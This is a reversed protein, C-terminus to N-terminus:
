DLGPERAIGALAADSIGRDYIRVDAIAGRFTANTGTGIGLPATTSIDLKSSAARAVRAGDIFLELQGAERRVGLHRWGPQLEGDYTVNDGLRISHVHGSPLTGAFLEGQFVAMSWVRRYKVDLTSDLRGVLDWGRTGDFAYVEGAPLTGALLRGNYGVMAMVELEQGLRGADIWIGDDGHRHVRGDPWTGAYLQDGFVAYSYIQTVGPITGRSTWEGGGSYHFTEALPDASPDEDPGTPRGDHGAVVLKGDVAAMTMLRRRPTGCPTWTTGGDYRFVGETYWPAAYLCGDFVTLMGVGDCRRSRIDDAAVSPYGFEDAADIRGCDTWRGDGEFRFVRGGPTENSADSLASGRSKYFATGAYLAGGHVALSSVANAGDPAGCDTWESGGAYRYVRGRQDDDAAFTGAFLDGAWVALAMVFVTKGPRGRDEIQPHSIPM